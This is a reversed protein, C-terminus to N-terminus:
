KWDIWRREDRKEYLTLDFGFSGDWIVKSLGPPVKEFICSGSGPKQDGRRLHFANKKTGDREVLTITPPSSAGDIVLYSGSGISVEVEYRNAGIIVYPNVAPGYIVLKVPAPLFGPNQITKRWMALRYDHPYDHPYDLDGEEGGATSNWFRTEHELTWRPDDSVFSLEYDAAAGTYWYRGKKSGIIYGSMYWDGVYLRGPKAAEIDIAAVEYIANRKAIGAASTDCIVIATVPTERLERHFSAIRGNLTTYGISWDALEGSNTYVGDGNLEVSQGLHNVYKANDIM